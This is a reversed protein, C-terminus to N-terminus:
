RTQIAAPCHESERKSSQMLMQFDGLYEGAIREVSFCRRAKEFGAAGMVALREPAESFYRIGSAISEPDGARAVYGTLQHEVAEPMPSFDSVLVPKGLAMAELIAMSFTEGSLSPVCIVDADAILTNLRVKDFIPSAFEISGELSRSHVYHKMKRYFASNGGTESSQPGVTLLKNQPFSRLAQEFGEVLSALGKDAAFRGVYLFLLGSGASPQTSPTPRAHNVDICNYIRKLNRMSGDIRRAQKVVADSGCYVRDLRRYLPVPWKPTRHITHACVGLGAKRRLLFSFPTHFSTVDAAELVPFLQRTYRLGNLHDIWRNPHREYGKVRIHRIGNADIERAALSDGTRSYAVVEHGLRSFENALLWNLNEVGGGRTPPFLLQHPLILNIKM